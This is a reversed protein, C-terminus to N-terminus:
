SYKERIYVQGGIGGDKTLRDKRICKLTFQLCWYKKRLVGAHMGNSFNLIQEIKKSKLPLKCVCFDFELCVISRFTLPLYSFVETICSFIKMVNPYLIM